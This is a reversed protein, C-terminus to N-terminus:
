LEAVLRRFAPNLRLQALIPPWGRSCILDPCHVEHVILQRRLALEAHEGNDVGERAERRCQIDAEVESPRIDNFDELLNAPLMAERARDPDVLARLEDGAIKIEPGILAAHREVERARALWGVVAVDLREVALEPGFAEVRM